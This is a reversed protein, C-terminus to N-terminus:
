LMWDPLKRKLALYLRILSFALYVGLVWPVPAFDADQSFTKPAITYLLGFIFVIVLQIMSILIESREQQDQISNRLREPLIGDRLNRGLLSRDTKSDHKTLNKNM